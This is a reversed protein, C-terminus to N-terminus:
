VPTVVSAPLHPSGAWARYIMALRNHQAALHAQVTTPLVCLVQDNPTFYTRVAQQRAPIGMIRRPPDAHRSLERREPASSQSLRLPEGCGGSRAAPAGYKEVLVSEPRRGPFNQLWGLLRPLPRCCARWRALLPLAAPGARSGGQVLLSFRPLPHHHIRNRYCPDGNGRDASGASPLLASSGGASSGGFRRPDLQCPRRTGARTLARRTARDADVTHRLAQRRARRHPWGAQASCPGRWCPEPSGGQVCGRNGAPDQRNGPGPSSRRSQTLQAQRCRNGRRYQAPAGTIASSHRQASTPTMALSNKAPRGKSYRTLVREAAELESLQGALKERQADIRALAEDVRRKQKTIEDLAAMRYRRSSYLQGPNIMKEANLGTIAPACYWFAPNNRDVIHRRPFLRRTLGHHTEASCNWARLAGFFAM